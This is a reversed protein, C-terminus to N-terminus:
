QSIAEFLMDALSKEGEGEVPIKITSRSSPTMGFERMLSILNKQATHMVGVSPNQYRNGKDSVCVIGETDVEKKADYWISYNECLLALALQDIYTLLGAEHLDKALRDWQNRAAESLWKPPPPRAPNPQPERHNIARKGPNGQLNKLATPKAPNM